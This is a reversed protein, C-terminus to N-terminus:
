PVPLIPGIHNLGQGSLEPAGAHALEERLIIQQSINADMGGWEAPWHPAIWGRAALKKFWWQADEFDPRTSLGRLRDPLAEELWARVELRFARDDETDTTFSIPM